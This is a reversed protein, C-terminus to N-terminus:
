SRLACSCAPSESPYGRVCGFGEALKLSLIISSFGFVRGGLTYACHGINPNDPIFDIVCMTSGPNQGSCLLSINLVEGFERCLDTLTQHLEAPGRCAGLLAQTDLMDNM